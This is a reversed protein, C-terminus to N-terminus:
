KTLNLKERIKLVKQLYDTLDQDSELSKGERLESYAPCFLVHEQTKISIQCSSCQCLKDSYERQNKYNFQTDFMKARFKFKSRANNLALNDLYSKKEFNESPMPGDKLKSLTKMANKLEKECEENLNQKVTSKFSTKPKM